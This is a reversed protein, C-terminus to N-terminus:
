SLQSKELLTKKERSEGGIELLIKRLSGINYGLWAMAESAEKSEGEM